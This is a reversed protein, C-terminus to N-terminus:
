LIEREYDILTFGHVTRLQDVIKDLVSHVFRTEDAVTVVALQARSFSDAYGTEAISINFRNRLREKLGKVIRRKDKLSQAEPLSAEVTMAGIIM